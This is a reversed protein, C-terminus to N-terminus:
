EVESGFMDGVDRHLVGREKKGKEETAEDFGHVIAHGDAATNLSWEDDDNEAEPDEAENDMTADATSTAFCYSMHALEHAIANM